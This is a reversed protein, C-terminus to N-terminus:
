PFLNQLIGKQSNKSLHAQAQREYLHSVAGHKRSFKNLYKNKNKFRPLYCDCLKALSDDLSALKDWAKTHKGKWIYSAAWYVWYINHSYVSTYTLYDEAAQPIYAKGKKAKKYEM